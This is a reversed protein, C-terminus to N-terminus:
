EIKGGAILEDIKITYEKRLNTLDEVSYKKVERAEKELVEDYGDGYLDLIARRYELPAGNKYLNCIRCQAHTGEESFLNGNHRGPIFHGAQLDKFPLIASCTVCKGYDTSGTTFLCDRLRIYESFAKWAKAKITSKKAQKRKPQRKEVM